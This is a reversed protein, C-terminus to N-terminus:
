AKKRERRGALAMRGFAIAESWRVAGVALALAAYLAMDILLRFYGLFLLARHALIVGIAVGIAKAIAIVSRRDFARRGINYFMMASIILETGTVGVAAGAGVWGPGFPRLLPACILILTPQIALGILSVMTLRWGRELLVLALSLLMALYTAVFIPALFRLCITAEQFKNGFAIKVWFDAGLGILLTVPIVGLLLGEIARRLMAFFEDESRHKARAFLPMLVWTILPSLLMALGAFNNAASYWGVEAPADRAIFELMSVDLRSGLVVAISNVYFPFSAILVKKLVGLNLELKLDIAQRVAMVLVTLRSLESALYPLALVVLPANLWIGLVVGGGWLLKAVVNIAALAGVKTSAQLMVSLSGNVGQVVQTLGLVIVVGQLEPSHGTLHLVAAMIIFVALSLVGRLLLVGGFFESVHKPRVAAEKQIYTEIGLTLFVFFAGTFSDCFSFDGFKVPGLHRPLQFRVALAVTWSALLSGGLKLANRLATVVDSTSSGTPHAPSASPVAEPSSSGKRAEDQVPLSM